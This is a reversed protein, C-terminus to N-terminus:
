RAAPSTATTTGSCAVASESSTACRRPAAAPAPTLRSIPASPTDRQQVSTFHTHLLLLALPSSGLSGGLSPGPQWLSSRVMAQELTSYWCRGIDSYSSPHVAAFGGERSPDGGLPDNQPTLREGERLFVCPQLNGGLINRGPRGEYRVRCAGGGQAGQVGSPALAPAPPSAGCDGQTTRTFALFAAPPPPLPDRPRLLCPAPGRPEFGNSDSHIGCCDASYLECAAQAPPSSMNIGRHAFVSQQLPLM